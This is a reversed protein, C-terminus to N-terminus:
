LQMEIHNVQSVWEVFCFLSDIWYIMKEKISKWILVLRFFKLPYFAISEICFTIQVFCRIFSKCLCLKEMKKYCFFLIRFLLSTIINARKTFNTFVVSKFDTGELNDTWTRYHALESPSIPLCPLNLIQEKQTIPELGTALVLLFLPLPLLRILLTVRRLHFYFSTLFSITKLLIM